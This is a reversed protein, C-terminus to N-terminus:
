LPALCALLLLAPGLPGHAKHQPTSLWKWPPDSAARQSPFTRYRQRSAAAGLRRLDTVAIGDYPKLRNGLQEQVGPDTAKLWPFLGLSERPGQHRHGNRSPPQRPKEAVEKQSAGAAASQLPNTGVVKLRAGSMPWWWKLSHQHDPPKPLSLTRAVLHVPGERPMRGCVNGDPDLKCCNEAFARWHLHVDIGLM